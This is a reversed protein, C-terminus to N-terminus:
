DLNYVKLLVLHMALAPSQSPISSQPSSDSSASQGCTSLCQSSSSNIESLQFWLDQLIAPYLGLHAM